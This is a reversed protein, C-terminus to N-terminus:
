SGRHADGLTYHARTTALKRWAGGKPLRLRIMSQCLAEPTMEPDGTWCDVFGGAPGGPRVGSPNGSREIAGTAPTAGYPGEPRRYQSGVLLLPERLCGVERVIRWSGLIALWRPIRLAELTASGPNYRFPATVRVLPPTPCQASM